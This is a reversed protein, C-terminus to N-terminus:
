EVVNEPTEKQDQQDWQGLLVKFETKEMKEPYGLSERIERQDRYEKHGRRVLLVRYERM